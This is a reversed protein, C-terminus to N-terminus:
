WKIGNYGGEVQREQRKNAKGWQIKQMDLEKLLMQTKKHSRFLYFQSQIIINHVRYRSKWKKHLMCQGFVLPVHFLVSGLRYNSGLTGSGPGGVVM